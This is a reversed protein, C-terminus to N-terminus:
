LPSLPEVVALASAAAAAEPFAAAGHDKLIDAAAAPADILAANGDAGSVALRGDPLAAAWNAKYSLKIRAVVASSSLQTVCVTHDYSASLIHDDGVFAVSYVIDTHIWDLVAIIVCSYGREANYVRVTKDDSATAVLIDNVDVSAVWETHGGLRALRERSDIDWVAATKDGSATALRGGCVAFDRVGDRHAGEIRAAEEVGRGGRHTYFVVDGGETGAVFRGGDLAALSGVGHGAAAEGLREGSTANWTIVKGDYGGSVIFDGGLAALARWGISGEHADLEHELAGTAVAFLRVKGNSSATAVHGGGTLPMLCRVWENEGQGALAVDGTPAEAAPMALRKTERREEGQSEESGPAV